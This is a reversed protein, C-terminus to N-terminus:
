SCVGLDEVAALDPIPFWGFWSLSFDGVMGVTFYIICWCPIIAKSSLPAPM